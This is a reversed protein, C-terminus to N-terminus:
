IVRRIMITFRIWLTIMRSNDKTFLVVNTIKKIWEGQKKGNEDIKNQANVSFAFILLLLFAITKRITTM